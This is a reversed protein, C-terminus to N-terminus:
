FIPLLIGQIQQLKVIPEYYFFGRIPEEIWVILKKLVM